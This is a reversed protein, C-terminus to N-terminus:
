LNKKELISEIYDFTTLLEPKNKRIAVPLEFHASFSKDITKITWGDKEQKIQKKGINIMPEICIVMGTQLKVGCGKRGYNPVEPSEHLDKGIGHGVMERVVSYGFSEVYTQIVNGIDGIRNGEIAFSIGQFLSEKTVKLLNLVDSSVEGVTFTYASDGIYGNMLVGCDVSVIDGDKLSYNSPIGHVVVDNVSTCLTNPFGNYGLFAPKANNSLIFDKAISDLKLTTVGPEIFKAIEGLTLTVLENSKRILEIEEDTKLLIM